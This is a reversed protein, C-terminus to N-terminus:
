SRQVLNIKYKMTGPFYGDFFESWYTIYRQFGITEYLREAVTNGLTVSIGAHTHGKRAGADLIANLLLKAVGKGRSEAVVAVCEIIWPASPALTTDHPDSWVEEYGRLFASLQESRWGLDDAVHQMRDLRLPRYDTNSMQFGSAGGIPKGNEEIIMFDEPDGWALARARFVAEIFLMTEAGIEQLLPDWYCFGPSPSSAEYNCWALFPIDAATAARVKMTVEESVMKM